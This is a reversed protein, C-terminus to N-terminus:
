QATTNRGNSDRMETVSIKRNGGYQPTQEFNPSFMEGDVDPAQTGDDIM